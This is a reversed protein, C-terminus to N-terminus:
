EQKSLADLIAKIDNTYYGGLIQGLVGVVFEATVVVCYADYETVTMYRKKQKKKKKNKKKKKQPILKKYSKVGFDCGFPYHDDNANMAVPTYKTLMKGLDRVVDQMPLSFPIMPRYYQVLGTVNFQQALRAVQTLACYYKVSVNKGENKKEGDGQPETEVTKNIKLLKVIDRNKMENWDSCRRNFLNKLDANLDCWSAAFLAALILTCKM